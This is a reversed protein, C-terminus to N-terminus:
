LESLKKNIFLMVDVSTLIGILNNKWDVVPLCDLKYKAMLEVAKRVSDEPYIVHLNKTMIESFDGIKNYGIEGFEDDFDYLRRLTYEMLTRETILGIFKGGDIVPVHRVHENRMIEDARHITDDIEVSFVGSTMIESIKTNSPM